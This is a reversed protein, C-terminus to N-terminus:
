RRGRAACLCPPTTRLPASPKGDRTATVLVCDALAYLAVREHPPVSREWLEIPNYDTFKANIRAVEALVSERMEVVERNVIRAPNAM